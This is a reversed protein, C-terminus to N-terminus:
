PKSRARKLADSGANESRLVFEVFRPLAAVPQSSAAGDTAGVAPPQDAQQDGPEVDRMELAAFRRGRFVPESSLRQVYAPLKAPNLLRGRIEIEEGGMTVQFGTLWLDPQSQRAFGKMIASFGGGANGLRGSDLVAMVDRRVALAAKAADLEAALAASVKRQAVAKTLASLQEQEEALQKQLGSAIETNGSADFRTWLSLAIMLVLLVLTAVGLNRGTALEHRPRLRAEYLNIQQSM